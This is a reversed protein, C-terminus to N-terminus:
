KRVWYLRIEQESAIKWEGSERTMLCRELEEGAFPKSGSAAWNKRFVAVARDAGQPTIKVASINCVGFRGYKVFSAQVSKRVEEQSVNRKTFYSSLHPAYFAVFASEDGNKLAEAWSALVTSIQATLAPDEPFTEERPESFVPPAEPSMKVWMYQEPVIDESRRPTEPVPSPKPARVQQSEMNGVLPALDPKVALKQQRDRRASQHKPAKDRLANNSTGSFFYGLTVALILGAITPFIWNKRAPPLDFSALLPGKLHPVPSRVIEEDKAPPADPQIRPKEPTSEETNTAGVLQGDSWFYFNRILEGDRAKLLLFANDVSPFYRALLKHDEESFFLGYRVHSRYLGVVCLGEISGDTIWQLTDRLSERDSVSLHYARDIAHECPVPEFDEIIIEKEGVRGLLLGGVEHNKGPDGFSSQLVEKEIGKMASQRVRVLPHHGPSEWIVYDSESHWPNTPIQLM